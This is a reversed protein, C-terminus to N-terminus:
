PDPTRRPPRQAEAALDIGDIWGRHAEDRLRMHGLERRTAEQRGRRRAGSIGLVGVVLAAVIVGAAAGVFPMLVPADIANSGLGIAAGVVFGVLAGAFMALALRDPRNRRRQPVQV